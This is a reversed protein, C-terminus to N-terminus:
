VSGPSDEVYKLIQDDLNEIVGQTKLLDNSATMLEKMIRENIDKVQKKLELFAAEQKAKQLLLHKLVPDSVTKRKAVIQQLASRQQDSLKSNRSVAQMSDLALQNQKELKDSEYEQRTVTYGETGLNKDIEQMDDELADVEEDSVNLAPDKSEAKHINIKRQEELFRERASMPESNEGQM